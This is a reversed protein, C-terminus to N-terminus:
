FQPSFRLYSSFIVLQSHKTQRLVKAASQSLSFSSEQECPAFTDISVSVAKSIYSEIIRFAPQIPFHLIHKSPLSIDERKKAKERRRKELRNYFEHMQLAFTVAERAATFHLGAPPRLRVEPDDPIVQLVFVVASRFHHHFFM